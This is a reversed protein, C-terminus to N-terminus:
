RWRAHQLSISHSELVRKRVRDLIELAVPPASADRLTRCACGASDFVHKQQKPPAAGFNSVFSPNSDSFFQRQMRSSEEPSEERHLGCVNELSEERM